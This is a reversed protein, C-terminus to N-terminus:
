AESHPIYTTGVNKELWAYCSAEDDFFGIVFGDGTACVKNHDNISYETKNTHLINFSGGRFNFTKGITIANAEVTINDKKTM